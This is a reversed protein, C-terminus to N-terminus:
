IIQLFLSLNKFVKFDQLKECENVKDIFEQDYNLVGNLTSEDCIKVNIMYSLERYYATIKRFLKSYYENESVSETFSIISFIVILVSFIKFSKM